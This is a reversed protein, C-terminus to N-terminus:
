GRVKVASRIFARQLLFLTGSRRRDCAFKTRRPDVTRGCTYPQLHIKKKSRCRIERHAALLSRVSNDNSSGVMVMAGRRVMTWRDAGRNAAMYTLSCDEEEEPM